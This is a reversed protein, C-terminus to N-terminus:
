EEPIHCYATPFWEVLLVDSELLDLGQHNLYCSFMRGYYWCMNFCSCSGYVNALTHTFKM